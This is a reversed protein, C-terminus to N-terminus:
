EASAVNSSLFKQPDVPEKGDRIAFHLQPDKVNGTTGVYGIIDGQKVRDYKDVSARGLHAYTTTKSGAHKILVMNGYGALENGVYVVEGDAAAWVPEGESSAINIGDNVKGGGKPGFNSIVKHNAVPWMFGATEAKAVKKQTITVPKSAGDNSIIHDLQAVVPKDAPKSSIDSVMQPKAVQQGRPRLSFSDNQASPKPAALDSVGISEVKVASETNNSIFVPRSQFSSGYTPSSVNAAVNTSNRGYTNQGKLEIQAPTQTCAATSLLTTILSIRAIRRLM